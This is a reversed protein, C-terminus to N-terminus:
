VDGSPDLLDDDLAPIYGTEVVFITRVYGDIAGPLERVVQEISDKQVTGLSRSEEVEFLDGALGKAEDSPEIEVCWHFVPM